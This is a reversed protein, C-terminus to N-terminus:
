VEQNVDVVLDSALWEGDGSSALVLKDDRSVGARITSDRLQESDEAQDARQIIPVL